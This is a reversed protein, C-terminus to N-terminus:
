VSIKTWKRSKFRLLNLTMRMLQDIFQAVWAGYIGLGQIVNNADDTHSFLVYILLYSILPRIITVSFLSTTATFKSDGASRLIGTNVWQINQFVCAAAAILLANCATNLKYTSDPKYLMVLQKRLTVMIVCMIIGCSVSLIMAVKAYVIALDIRKEGLRHGVVAATGISFGDALTFLLSNIDNCVGQVYTDVTGLGNVIIAFVIFGIRMLIQEITISPLLKFIQKVNSKDWKFLRSFRFKIYDKQLMLAILSILFGVFQGIITALAAGKIGLSPFGLKGSILCYNLFINILNAVVNSIMSIKTNGIGKQCANIAMSLSNFVFGASLITLYSIALPLTDEKAQMLLCLPKALAIFLISLFISFCFSLVLGLHVIKNAGDVDKQGKRRAIIASLVVNLSQSLCVLVFYPQKCITVAANAVNGIDAVQIGDFLTVLAVLFSELMSAWVIKMIDKSIRKFPPIEGIIEEEKCYKKTDFLKLYM